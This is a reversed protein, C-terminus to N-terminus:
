NILPMWFLQAGDKPLTDTVEEMSIGAEALQQM